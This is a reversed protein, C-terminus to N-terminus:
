ALLNPHSLHSSSAMFPQEHSPATVPTGTFCGITQPSYKLSGACHSLVSFGASFSHHFGLSAHQCRSNQPRLRAHAAQAAVQLMLIPVFLFLLLPCSGVSISSFSPRSPFNRWFASLSLGAWTLTHPHALLCGLYSCSLAGFVSSQNDSPLKGFHIYVKVDLCSLCSFSSLNPSNSYSFLCLHLKNCLGKLVDKHVYM